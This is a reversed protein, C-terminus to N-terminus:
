PTDRGLEISLAPDADRLEISLAPDPDHQGGNRSPPVYSRAQSSHM